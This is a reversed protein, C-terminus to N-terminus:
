YFWQLIKRYWPVKVSQIKNETKIEAEPSNTSAIIPAVIVPETVATESSGNSPSPTAVFTSQKKFLSSIKKSVSNKKASLPAMTDLVPTSKPQVSAKVLKGSVVMVRKEDTSYKAFRTVIAANYRASKQPATLVVFYKKGSKKLTYKKGFVNATIYEIGKLVSPTVTLSFRQGPRVFKEVVSGGDSGGGSSGSTSSSTSTQRTTSPNTSALVGYLTFHDTTITLTNNETDLVQGDVTRWTSTSTDWYGNGLLSEASLSGGMSALIQADTYPITITVSNSFTGTIEAGNSDLASIEYGVGIPVSNDQLSMQATPTVTLTINSSSNSSDCTDVSSPVITNAPISVEMGNSLSLKKANACNFTASVADPVTFSAAALALNQTATTTGSLDVEYVDSLYFSNGTEYMARVYWTEGSTVNLSYSGNGSVVENYRGSSSYATVFGGQNAGNLTIAGSITANARGFTFNTTTPVSASITVETAQPNLYNVTTGGVMAEPPFFAAIKYTGAPMNLSYTGDSGTMKGESFMPGIGPQFSSSKRNDVSVWVGALPSGSPNYVTGSVTSDASRLVVDKTVTTNAVATVNNETNPISMYNNSAPDIHYGVRWTGAAVVVDVYGTTLNASNFMKWVHGGNGNDMFVEAFSLNTVLNGNGDKFRVRVTANNPQVSVDVNTNQGSVATVTTMNAPTYGASDTPFDVGVRYTGAPVKITFTGNSIPSGMGAGMMPGANYASNSEAFAYGWLNSVVTETGAAVVRGTITADAISMKFNNNASSASDSTINVTTPAGSYIYNTSSQSYGGGMMGRDAMVNVVWTGRTVNLTFQGKTAETASSNTNAWDGGGMSGGMGGSSEDFKRGMKFAEVRMNGVGEGADYSNNGNADAWVMGTIRAAKEVLALDGLANTGSTVTITQTAPTGYSQDWTNVKVNYTGSPVAVSFAGTQWNVSAYSSCGDKSFLDVSANGSVPSGNPYTVRGTITAATGKVDFNNGTSSEVTNGTAFSVSKSKDCYIWDATVDDNPDGNFNAMYNVDPMLMWAGGGVQLSYTGNGATTTQAMGSGMMKFARISAGSLAVGDKTVTGSITKTALAYEVNGLNHPLSAAATTIEGYTVSGNENVTFEIASPENLGLYNASSFPLRVELRYSGAVLGGFRFVGNANTQTYKSRQPNFSADMLNVSADAVASGAAAVCNTCGAPVKVTGTIQVRTLAVAGLPAQTYDVTSGETLAVNSVSVANSYTSGDPAFAEIIYTGNRSEGQAGYIDSAFIYAKGDIGTNKGGSATYNSTHIWVNSNASATSGDPQVVKVKLMPTGIPQHPATATTAQNNKSDAVYPWYAGEVSPNTVGSLQATIQTSASITGSVPLNVNDCNNPNTQIAGFQGSIDESSGNVISVVTANCFNVSTGWDRQLGLTVYDSDVGLLQAATTFTYTYTVNQASAVSSSVSFASVTIAAAGAQRIFQKALYAGGGVLVVVFFVVVAKIVFRLINLKM